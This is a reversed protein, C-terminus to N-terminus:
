NEWFWKKTVLANKVVRFFSSFPSNLVLNYEMYCSYFCAHCGSMDPIANFAEQWGHTLGSRYPPPTKSNMMEACPLVFGDPSVVCFLKKAWCKQRPFDPYGKIQELYQLSNAIKSNPKKKEVILWDVVKKIQNPAPMYKKANGETDGRHVTVPQLEWFCDYKKAIAAVENLRDINGKHIVTVLFVPIKKERLAALGELTKKFNGAGRISDHIEEPGDLSTLVLNINKLDDIKQAVLTGNTSIFPKMGLNHAFDILEKIDSQLLPEGGNLGWFLTGMKKFELMATKIEETTM